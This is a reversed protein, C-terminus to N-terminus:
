ALMTLRLLARLICKYSTDEAPASVCGDQVHRSWFEGRCSASMDLLMQVITCVHAYVPKM